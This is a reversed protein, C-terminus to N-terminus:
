AGPLGTFGLAAVYVTRGDPSAAIAGQNPNPYYNSALQIPAGARNSPISIPIVGTATSLYLTRGDPTIVMPGPGEPTAVVKRATNSATAIPTVGAETPQGVLVQGPSNPYFGLYPQARKPIFHTDSPPCM